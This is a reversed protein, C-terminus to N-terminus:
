FLAVVTRAARGLGRLTRSAGEALHPVREIGHTRSASEAGSAAAVLGSAGAAVGASGLRGYGDRAGHAGVAQSTGHFWGGARPAVKAAREAGDVRGTRRARIARGARPVCRDARPAGVAGRSNRRKGGAGRAVVARFARGGERAAHLALVGGTPGLCAGITRRAEVAPAGNGVRREAAANGARIRSRARRSAGVAAAAGVGHDFGGATGGAGTPLVAFGRAPAAAAAGVPLVRATARRAARATRLAVELRAM